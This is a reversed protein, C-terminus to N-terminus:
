TAVKLAVAGSAEALVSMRTVMSVESSHPAMPTRSMRRTRPPRHHVKRRYPRRHAADLGRRSGGGVGGLGRRGAPARVLAFRDDAGAAQGLLVARQRRDVPEVELDERALDEPQEALVARALRRRDEHEEAQGLRGGALGRDHPEIRGPLRALDLAPDAVQGVRDAEVAPM